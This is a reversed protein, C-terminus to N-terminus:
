FDTDIGVNTRDAGFPFACSLPLADKCCVSARQFERIKLRRAEDMCELVFYIM